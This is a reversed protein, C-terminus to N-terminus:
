ANGRLVKTAEALVAELDALADLSGEASYISARLDRAAREVRGAAEARAAQERVRAVRPDTKAVLFWGVGGGLIAASARANRVLTFTDHAPLYRWARQESDILRTRGHKTVTTEIITAPVERIILVESDVAYKEPFPPHSSPTAADEISGLTGYARALLELAETKKRKVLTNRFSTVEEESLRGDPQLHYISGQEYVFAREQESWRMAYRRGPTRLAELVLYRTSSPKSPKMRYLGSEVVGRARPLAEEAPPGYGACHFPLRVSDSVGWRHPAHAVENTALNCESSDLDLADYPATM